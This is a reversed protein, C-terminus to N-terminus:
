KTSNLQQRYQNRTFVEEQATRVQTSVFDMLSRFAYRIGDMHHNFIPIPVNIIKGEKNTDWLYNRNEKIINLSRKTVYIEQDQVLQIGNNISDPGKKASLITLGYASLEDNSKPEASDAAIPVQKEQNLLVDAIQKNSLGKQYLIEDLVWANNWKYLDGIATPDNSYGYDLWRRELRAGEPVEDLIKWNPFIRSEVMGLQGLGYVQWWQKRGKRQEIAKVIEESLAENDKYTLVIHEVDDRLPIVETFLWFENTPNFDLFVFEKTRVELQEFADFLVNNAENIFLRDRRGGRLKDANDASFFEMQSGTEFTYISDTANWSNEKWYGQARMINKFDRIAGRKLHPISESVVSTLTPTEDHQALAILFILISITKSASTGGQVVRIRKTLKEVKRTATTIKFM